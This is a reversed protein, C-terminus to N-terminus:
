YDRLEIFGDNVRPDDIDVIGHPPVFDPEMLMRKMVGHGIGTQSGEPFLQVEYEVAEDPSSPRMVSPIQYFMVQLARLRRKM